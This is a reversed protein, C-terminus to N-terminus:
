STTRKQLLVEALEFEWEEDIDISDKEPMEFPLVHAGYIDGGKIVRVHNILIAPGNRGYAADLNNVEGQKPAADFYPNIYSGHQKLLKQPHFNKPCRMVSVLTDAQLDGKFRHLANRIHDATRLPSTPQLLIIIDDDGYGGAAHQLVPIMTVTDGAIEDPRPCVTVADYASAIDIIEADDSSVIVEDFCQSDIAAEISWSILPKGACLRKNKRPVRKSGGRAPIVAIVKM